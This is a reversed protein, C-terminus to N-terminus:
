FLYPLLKPDSALAAAATILVLTPGIYHPWTAGIAGQTTGLFYNKYVEIRPTSIPPQPNAKLAAVTSVGTSVGGLHLPPNWVM